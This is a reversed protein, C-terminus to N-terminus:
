ISNNFNGIKGSKSAKWHELQRKLADIATTISVEFSPSNKSVFLDKGPMALTIECVKDATVSSKDLKLLVRSEVIRDSLTELNVMHKRVFASLKRTLKFDIAQVTIKKTTANMICLIKTEVKSWITVEIEYGICLGPLKRTGITVIM